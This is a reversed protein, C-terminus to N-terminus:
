CTGTRPQTASPLRVTRALRAVFSASAECCARVGAAIRALRGRAAEGAWERQAHAAHEPLQYMTGIL